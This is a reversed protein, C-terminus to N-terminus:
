SVRKYICINNSITKYCFINWDRLFIQKSAILFQSFYFEGGPKFFTKDCFALQTFHIFHKFNESSHTIHLYLCTKSLLDKFIPSVDTKREMGYATLPTSLISVRQYFINRISSDMFLTSNVTKLANFPGMVMSKMSFTWSHVSSTIELNKSWFWKIWWIFRMYRDIIYLAYIQKQLNSLMIFVPIMNVLIKRSSITSIKFHNLEWLILRSSCM